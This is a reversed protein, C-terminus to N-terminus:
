AQPDDEAKAARRAKRKKHGVALAPVLIAALLVLWPWASALAVALNEVGDVFGRWGAGLAAALRSGFGTPPEEVNSLKYVEDLSVTVTSYDVLADYHRLEGSLSDIMEETESIASEIAIIDEMNEAQALLEQLRSLKTKQTQLRGASDYYAESVDEAQERVSLVHALAGAQDLFARYQEAPVRVTYEGHRYGDWDSVSSQEYYGGCRETLAALSAAASDFDTAEMSLSATYIIKAQTNQERVSPPAAPEAPEEWVEAAASDSQAESAYVDEALEYADSYKAGCACLATILLACIGVSFYRKGKM